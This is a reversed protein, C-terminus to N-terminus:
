LPAGCHECTGYEKESLCGCYECRKRKETEESELTEIGAMEWVENLTLTEYIMNDSWFSTLEDLLPPPDDFLNVTRPAIAITITRMDDRKKRNFLHGLISM